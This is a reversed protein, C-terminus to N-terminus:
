GSYGSCGRKKICLLPSDSSDPSNGVTPQRSLVKPLHLFSKYLDPFSLEPKFIPEVLLLNGVPLVVRPKQLRFSGVSLIM